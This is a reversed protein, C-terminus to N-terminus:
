IPLKCVSWVSLARPAHLTSAGTAGSSSLERWLRWPANPHRATDQRDFNLHVICAPDPDPFSPLDVEPQTTTVQYNAREGHEM